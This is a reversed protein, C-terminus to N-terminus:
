YRAMDQEVEDAWAEIGGDLNKLKKFGLSKLKQLVFASRSGHHCYLVTEKSPDLESVRGHIQNVPILRAGEIHCINYEWQERVDVLTFDEKRDIKEKLQKPTIDEAPMSKYNM